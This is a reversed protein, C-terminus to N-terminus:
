RGLLGGPVWPGGAQQLQLSTSCPFPTISDGDGQSTLTDAPFPALPLSTTATTKQGVLFHIPSTNGMLCWQSGITRKPVSM